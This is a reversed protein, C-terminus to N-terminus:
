PSSRRLQADKESRLSTLSPYPPRLMLGRLGSIRRGFEADRFLDGAGQQQARGAQEEEKFQQLYDFSSEVSAEDDIVASMSKTCLSLAVGELVKGNM